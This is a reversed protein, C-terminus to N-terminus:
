RLFLSYALVLGSVSAAASLLFSIGSPLRKDQRAPDSMPAIVSTSRVALMREHRQVIDSLEGLRAATELLMM